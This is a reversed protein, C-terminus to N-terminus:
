RAGAAMAAQDRRTPEVGWTPPPVDLVRDPDVASIGPVVPDGIPDTYVYGTRAVAEAVEADSPQVNAM